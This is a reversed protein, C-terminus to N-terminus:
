GGDEVGHMNGAVVCDCSAASPDPALLQPLVQAREIYGRPTLDFFLQNLRQHLIPGKAASIAVLLREM